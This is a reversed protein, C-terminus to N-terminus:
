VPVGAAAPALNMRSGAIGFGLFVPYNGAAPVDTTINGANRSAWYPQGNVTAFGPSFNADREAVAGPQGNAGNTLAIGRRDLIGAGVGAGADTDFLQWRQNADLYVVQGATITAGYPYARMKDALNSASVAASNITNDAM